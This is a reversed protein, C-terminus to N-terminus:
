TFFATAFTKLSRQIANWALVNSALPVTPIGTSIEKLSRLIMSHPSLEKLPMAGAEEYVLLKSQTVNSVVNMPKRYVTTLRVM